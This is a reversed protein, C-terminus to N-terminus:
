EVGIKLAADIYESFVIKLEGDKDVIEDVFEPVYDSNLFLEKFEETSSVNLMDLSHACWKLLQKKRSDPMPLDWPLESPIDFNEHQSALGLVNQILRQQRRTDFEAKDLNDLRIFIQNSTAVAGLAFGLTQQYELEALLKSKNSYSRRDVIWGLAVCALAILLM